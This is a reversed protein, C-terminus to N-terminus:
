RNRTYAKICLNCSYAEEVREWRKGDASIYGEGDSLDVDKTKEDAAYEIAMPHVAQPTSLYVAVAFKEGPELAVEKDAQVTYFGADETKGMALLEGEALSGAGDFHRVLYISYATQKGTAYFGVASLKEEGKATYANAGCVSDKEFGIQGVWGCLDSQYISDYNDAGEARTYVISHNGINSDCYSVYFVGGDGFGDGWSNQCLFAGDREAGAPFYEKPYNDDWGIIVVEHNPRNEGVYCYASRERDYYASRAMGDAMALYLSTQVGGHRFVSEKIKVFDREEMMRVEQVHKVASLGPETRGDGFPDDKEYVPGQWSLLYAMSMAYEGGSGDDSSFSNSMSMHDPSLEAEEEPLIASELASLSAFAWCTGTSGQDKVKGARGQERLDYRAPVIPALANQDTLRARNGEMDWDYAYGLKQAVEGLSVFYEGDQKIMPSSVSEKKGNVYLEPEGAVLSVADERKELLLEDKGYWHAACNIGEPLLEVPMMLSLNEDMFISASSNTYEKSDISVTLHKENVSEAILPNFDEELLRGDGQRELVGTAGKPGRFSLFCGFAALGAALAYRKWHSM